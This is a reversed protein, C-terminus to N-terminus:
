VTIADGTAFFTGGSLYHLTRLGDDGINWRGDRFVRDDVVPGHDILRFAKDLSVPTLVTDAVTLPKPPRM